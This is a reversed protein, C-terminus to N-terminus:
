RPVLLQRRVCAPMSQESTSNGGNEGWGWSDDAAEQQIVRELEAEALADAEAQAKAHEAADAEQKARLEDALEKKEQERRAEKM